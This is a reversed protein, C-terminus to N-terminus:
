PRLDEALAIAQDFDAAGQIGVLVGGPQQVELLNGGEPIWVASSENVDVLRLASVGGSYRTLPTLDRDFRSRVTVSVGEIDYVDTRSHGPLWVGLSAGQEVVELGEAGDLTVEVIHTATDVEFSEALVLLESVSIGSGAAYLPVGNRDVWWVKFSEGSTYLTAGEGNISVDEVSDGRGNDGSECVGLPCTDEFRTLSPWVTMGATAETRSDDAFGLLVLSPPQSCLPGDDQLFTEIPTAGALVVSIEPPIASPDVESTFGVSPRVPCLWGPEGAVSELTGEKSWYDVIEAPVRSTDFSDGDLIVSPGAGSGGRLLLPAAIAAVVLCVAIAVVSRPRRRAKWPIRDTAVARAARHTDRAAERLREDITM